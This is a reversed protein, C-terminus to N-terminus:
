KAGSARMGHEHLLVEMEPINKVGYSEWGSFCVLFYERKRGTNGKGCLRRIENRAYADARQVLAKRREQAQTPLTVPEDGEDKEFSAGVQRAFAVFEPLSPQENKGIVVCAKVEVPLPTTTDMIAEM